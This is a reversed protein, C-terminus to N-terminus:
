HDQSAELTAARTLKLDIPCLVASAALAAHAEVAPTRPAHWGQVRGLTLVNQQRDALAQPIWCLGKLDGAVGHGGAVAIGLHDGFRRRKRTIEQRTRRDV